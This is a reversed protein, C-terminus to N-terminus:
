SFNRGSPSSSPQKLTEAEKSVRERTEKEFNEIKSRLFGQPNKKCHCHHHNKELEERKENLCVPCDNSNM